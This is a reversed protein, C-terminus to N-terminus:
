RCFSVKPCVLSIYALTNRTWNGALRHVSKYAESSTRASAGWVESSMLRLHLTKLNKCAWREPPALLMEKDGNPYSLRSLGWALLSMSSGPVEYFYEKPFKTAHARLHLLHPAHCLFNHLQEHCNDARDFTIELDTLTQGVTGRLAQFASSKFNNATLQWRTINTVSMTEILRSLDSSPLKEPYISFHYSELFPCMQHVRQFYKSRPQCFALPDPQGPEPTISRAELVKFNRLNPSMSLLDELTDETVLVHQLILNQLLLPGHKAPLQVIPPLLPLYQVRLSVHSEVRLSLLNPLQHIWEIISCSDTYTTRM